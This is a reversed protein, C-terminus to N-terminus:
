ATVNTDHGGEVPITTASTTVPPTEAESSYTSIALTAEVGWSRSPSSNTYTVEDPDVTVRFAFKVEDSDSAGPWCTRSALEAPM